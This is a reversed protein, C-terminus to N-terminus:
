PGSILWGLMVLLSCAGSFSRGGLLLTSLMPSQERPAVHVCGVQVYVFMCVHTDVCLAASHMYLIM